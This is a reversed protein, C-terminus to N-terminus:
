YVFLPVYNENNLESRNKVNMLERLGCLQWLLAITIKVHKSRQCKAENHTSQYSPPKVQELYKRNMRM